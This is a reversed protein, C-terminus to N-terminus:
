LVGFKLNGHMTISDVPAAELGIFAIGSPAVIVLDEPTWILPEPIRVNWGVEEIITPTGARATNNAEVTGGFAAGNPNRNQATPASGGSGSTAARGVTVRLVEEMADGLETTQYLRFGLLVVPGNSPATIEFLDQAATVGVASFLASYVDRFQIM